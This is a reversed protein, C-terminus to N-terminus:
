GRTRRREAARGVDTPPDSLTDLDLRPGATESVRAGEAATDRVILEFQDLLADFQRERKAAWSAFFVRVGLM